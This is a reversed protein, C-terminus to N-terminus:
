PLEDDAVFQVTAPNGNRTVHLAYDGVAANVCNSTCETVEVVCTGSGQAVFTDLPCGSGPVPFTCPVEDNGTIADGTNCGSGPGFCLDSASAGSTTDAGIQINQGATVNFRYRDIVAPECTELTESVPSLLTPGSAGPASERFVAHSLAYALTKANDVVCQGVDAFTAATGNCAAALVDPSLSASCKSDIIAIVKAEADAISALAEDKCSTASPLAKKAEDKRKQCDLLASARVKLMATLLGGIQDACKISDPSLPPPPPPTGYKHHVALDVAAGGLCTLCAAVAPWQGCRGDRAVPTTDCDYDSACSNGVQGASCTRINIADCPAPCDGFRLSTPSRTAACSQVATQVGAVLRSIGGNFDDAVSCNAPQGLKMRERNCSALVRTAGVVYAAVASAVEGRCTAAPGSPPQGLRMAGSADRPLPPLEFSCEDSPEVPPAEPCPEGGGADVKVTIPIPTPDVQATGLKTKCDPEEYCCFDIYYKKEGTAKPSIKSKIKCSKFDPGPGNVCVNSPLTIEPGILIPCSNTWRYPLNRIYTINDELPAPQMPCSTLLTEQPNRDDVVQFTIAAPSASATGDIQVRRCYDKLVAQASPPAVATLALTLTSASLGRVFRRIANKM